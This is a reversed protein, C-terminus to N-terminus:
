DDANSRAQELHLLRQSDVEIQRVGDNLKNKTPDGIPNAVPAAYHSPDGVAKECDTLGTVTLKGAQDFLLTASRKHASQTGANDAKALAAERQASISLIHFSVLDSSNSQARLVNVRDCSGVLGDHLAGVYGRGAFVLGILLILFGATARRVYGRLAKSAGRETEAAILALQDDTLPTVRRDTGDHSM